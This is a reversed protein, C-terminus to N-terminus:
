RREEDPEDAQRVTEAPRLGRSVPADSWKGEILQPPKRREVLVFDVERGAVDRFYRLELDRGEVDREWHGGKSGSVRRM